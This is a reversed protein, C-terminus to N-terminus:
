PEKKMIITSPTDYTLYFGNKQWFSLGQINDKKVEVFVYRCIDAARLSSILARIVSSGLGRNRFREVFIALTIYLKIGPQCNYVGVIGIPQDEYKIIYGWSFIHVSFLTIKLPSVDSPFGLKKLISAEAKKLLKYLLPWSRITLLQLELNESARIKKPIKWARFVPM